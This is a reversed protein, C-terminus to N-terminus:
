RRILREAEETKGEVAALLAFYYNWSTAPINGEADRSGDLGSRAQEVVDRLRDADGLFWYTIIRAIAGDPLYNVSGRVKDSIDPLMGEAAVYNRAVIQAEWRAMANVDSEYEDMLVLLEDAWRDIDRHEKLELMKQWHELEFTQFDANGIEEKAEDYRHSAMLNFVLSNTHGANRPDRMRAQRITDIKGEMDEQRRQIWTKLNLIRVDSPRTDQARSIFEYAQDNDKL